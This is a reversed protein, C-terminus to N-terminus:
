PRSHAHPLCHGMKGLAVLALIYPQYLYSVADSHQNADKLAKSSAPMLVRAHVDTSEFPVHVSLNGVEADGTAM